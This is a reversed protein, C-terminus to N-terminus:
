VGNIEIIKEGFITGNIQYHPFFITCGSLGCIAIHRIRMTHQIGSVVFVCEGYTIFLYLSGTLPGTNDM